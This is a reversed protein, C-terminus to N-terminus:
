KMKNIGLAGDFISAKPEHGKGVGVHDGQDVVTGADYDVKLAHGIRDVFTIYATQYMPPYGLDGACFIHGNQPELIYWSTLDHWDGGVYFINYAHNGKSVSDGRLICGAGLGKYSAMATDASFGGCMMDHYESIKTWSGANGEFEDIGDIKLKILYLPIDETHPFHPEKYTMDIGYETRINSRIVGLDKGGAIGDGDEDYDVEEIPLYPASQDIFPLHLIKQYTKGYVKAFLVFDFINVKGDNNFDARSDFKKDGKKSNYCSAFRVFDHIGIKGDNDFDGKM